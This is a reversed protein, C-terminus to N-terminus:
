KVDHERRPGFYDMMKRQVLIDEKARRPLKALPTSPPSCIEYDDEEDNIPPPFNPAAHARVARRPARRLGPKPNAHPEQIITTRTKEAAAPIGLPSYEDDDHETHIRPTPKTTPKTQPPPQLEVAMSTSALTRDKVRSSTTAGHSSGDRELGAVPKKEGPVPRLSRSRLEAGLPVSFWASEDKTARWTCINYEPVPQMANVATIAAYIAVTDEEIEKATAGQTTEAFPQCEYQGEFPDWSGRITKTPGPARHSSSM